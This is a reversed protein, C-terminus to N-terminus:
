AERVALRIRRGNQKNRNIYNIQKERDPFLSIFVQDPYRNWETAFVFNKHNRMFSVLQDMKARLDRGNNYRNLEVNLDVRWKDREDNLAPAYSQRGTASSQIIGNDILSFRPDNFIGGGEIRLIEDLIMVESVRVTEGRRATFQLTITKANQKASIEGDAESAITWLENNFGDILTSVDEASDNRLNADISLGIGTFANPSSGGRGTVAIGSSGSVKAFISTFERASGTGDGESDIHCTVTTQGATTDYRNDAVEAPTTRGNYFNLPLQFLRM